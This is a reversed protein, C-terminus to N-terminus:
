PNDRDVSIDNYVATVGPVSYAALEAEDREALSGANGSLTVGGDPDAEVAIRKAELSALRLFRNEIQRRLAAPQITCPRITILDSVGRVGSLRRVMNNADERQYAWDVEGSLTVYGDNVEVQITKPLGASWRLVQVVTKAIDADDRVHMGPLDVRLENAIGGVGKVRRVANEAAWKESFTGLTGSLTVVGNEVAIGIKGAEIRPETDLAELVAQHLSKDADIFM